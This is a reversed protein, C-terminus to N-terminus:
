TCAGQMFFLNNACHGAQQQVQQVTNQSFLPDFGATCYTRVHAKLIKATGDAVLYSAKSTCALKANEHGTCWRLCFRARHIKSVGGTQLGEPHVPAVLWLPIHQEGCQGGAGRESGPWADGYSLQWCANSVFDARCGIPVM